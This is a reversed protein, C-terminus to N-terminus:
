ECAAMTSPCVHADFDNLNPDDFWFDMAFQTNDKKHDKTRSWAVADHISPVKFERQQKESFYTQSCMAQPVSKRPRFGHFGGTGMFENRALFEIREPFERAIMRIESKRSMICPLCGVRQAGKAYLPNPPIGYRKHILWVDEIKWKILPRWEPIGYYSELASGWESLKSRKESEDARIGNVAIVDYGARLLNDIYAKCPKMKLEQTCFRSKAGPFRNKKRALEYFDLPPYLFEIADYALVRRSLMRVHEVTEDADNGIYNFTVRIQEEPIGSERVMWLLLATSDKGGSVGVHYLKAM